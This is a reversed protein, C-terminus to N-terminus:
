QKTPVCYPGPALQCDWGSPPCQEPKTCQNSCFGYKQGDNGTFRVCIGGECEAGKECDSGIAKKTPAPDTPQSSSGGDQGGTNGSASSKPAQCTGKPGSSESSGGDPTGQGTGGGGGEDPPFGDGGGGEDPPFGDGDGDGFETLHVFMASSTGTNSLVCSQGSPCESNKTCSAGGSGSSSSSSCGVGIALALAGCAGVAILTRSVGISLIEISRM